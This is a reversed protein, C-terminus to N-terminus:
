PIAVKLEWLWSLGIERFFIVMCINSHSTISHLKACEANLAETASFLAYAYDTICIIDPVCGSVKM